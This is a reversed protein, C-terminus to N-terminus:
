GEERAPFLEATRAAIFDLFARVHAPMATRRPYLASLFRPAPRLPALVRVLTGSELDKAVFYEPLVAIGMGSLAAVHLAPLSDCQFRSKPPRVEHVRGAQRLELPRAAPGRPPLLVEHSALDRPRRPTGQERLYTPSACLVYPQVGLRRVMLTSPELRTAIRLAVDVGREVLDVMADELVLELSVAPHARLFDNVLPVLVQQGFLVPASVRLTGRPVGQETLDREAEDLAELIGRAHTLYREGAATLQMRRTTRQVLETGLRAELAALERSVASPVRRVTRAAGAISGARAVEVFTRLAEFRDRSAM